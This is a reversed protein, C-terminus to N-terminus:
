TKQLAATEFVQFVIVTMDDKAIGDQLALAKNLIEDAMQQPKKFCIDAVFHAFNEKSDFVDAVGDSAMIVVDGDNLAKKTICPTMEELVGLPLSGAQIIEVKDMNKVLGCTAGIKIFDCLGQRLDVVSIDVATFTEEQSLSLLKNVSSLITQNDFGAKYFNEILSIATSSTREAVDGSGMGDCLGILFRNNDIRLFSHTDGSIKSNQKKTNAFGFVVDFKPSPIFTMIVWTKNQATQTECLMMNCRCVKSVIKGISAKKSDNASVVMTVNYGCNEECVVVEKALVGYRALMEFLLNEKTQDFVTQSKAVQSLNKLIDSVGALQESILLRSNNCNTAVLYYHKYRDVAQNVNTLIANLRKCKHTMDDPLDFVTAKGRDLAGDMITLFAQETKEMYTRWCNTREACDNCVLGSVERSLMIKADERPVIGRVMGSFGLKMEFFVESLDYLKRSLNTKTRNIISRVAYDGGTRGLKEALNQLTANPIFVFAICGAFLSVTDLPLYVDGMFFWNIAFHFVPLGFICMPKLGKLLMAVVGLMCFLAMQYLEGQGFASGAGLLFACTLCSFKGFVYLCFLLAFGGVCFFLSFDFINANSLGMALAVVCLSVCLKEDQGLKYRLGRVFVSKIAFLCLYAFVIGVFALVVKQLTQNTNESAYFVFFAQGFFLMSLFWKTGSKKKLLKNLVFIAFPVGFAVVSWLLVTMGFFCGSTLFAVSSTVVGVGCFMTAVYLGFCLVFSFSHSGALRLCLFVCLLVFSKAVEKKINTKTEIM